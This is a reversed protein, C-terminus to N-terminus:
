IWKVSKRLMFDALQAHIKDKTQSSLYVNDCWHPSIADKHQYFAAPPPSLVFHERLKETSQLDLLFTESGREKFRSRKVAIEQHMM